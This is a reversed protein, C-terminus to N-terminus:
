VGRIKFRGTLRYVTNNWLWALPWLILGALIYGVLKIVDKTTNIGDM